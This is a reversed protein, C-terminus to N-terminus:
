LKVELSVVLPTRGEEGSANIDIEPCSSLVQVIEVNGAECALGLASLGDKTLGNM